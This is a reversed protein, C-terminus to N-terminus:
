LRDSLAVRGSQTIGGPVTEPTQPIILCTLRQFGSPQIANHFPLNKLEVIRCNILSVSVIIQHVPVAVNQARLKRSEESWGRMCEERVWRSEFMVSEGEGAAKAAVCGRSRDTAEWTRM